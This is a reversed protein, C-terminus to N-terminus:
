RKVEARIKASATTAGSLAVYPLMKALKKEGISKVQLLDSAKRFQGHQQRYDAIRGALVKGIGPLYELQALTATNVNVVSRTLPQSTSPDIARQANLTAAFLLAALIAISRNM